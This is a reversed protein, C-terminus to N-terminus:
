LVKEGALGAGFDSLLEADVLLIEFLLCVLHFGHSRLQVHVLSLDVLVLVLNLAEGTLELLHLPLVVLLLAALLHLTCSLVSDLVLADV